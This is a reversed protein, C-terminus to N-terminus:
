PGGGNYHCLSSVASVLISLCMFSAKSKESGQDTVSSENRSPLTLSVSFKSLIRLRQFYYQTRSNAVQNPTRSGVLIWSETAPNCITQGAALILIPALSPASISPLTYLFLLPMPWSLDALTRPVAAAVQWPKIHMPQYSFSIKSTNVCVSFLRLQLM